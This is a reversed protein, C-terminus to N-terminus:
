FLGSRVHPEKKEPGIRRSWCNGGADRCSPPHALPAPDRDGALDIQQRISLSRIVSQLVYWFGAALCGTVCLVLFRRLGGAESFQQLLDSSAQGFALEKCRRTSLSLCNRSSGDRNGLSLTALLLRLGYPLRQLRVKM